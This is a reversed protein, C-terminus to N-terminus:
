TNQEHLHLPILKDSSLPDHSKIPSFADHSTVMRGPETVMPM